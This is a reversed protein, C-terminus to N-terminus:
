CVEVGQFATLFLSCIPISAEYNAEEAGITPNPIWVAGRGPKPWSKKRGPGVTWENRSAGRAQRVRIEIAEKLM